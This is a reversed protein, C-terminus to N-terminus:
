ADYKSMAVEYLNKAQHPVNALFRFFSEVEGWLSMEDIEWTHGWLHFVGDFRLCELALYRLSDGLSHAKLTTRFAKYRGGYFGQTLYNSIYTMSSHPYLQITTPMLFQSDMLGYHLNNITRAYKYGSSKVAEVHIKEFKGGPYCFGDINTSTIDQLKKRCDNIQHAASVPDLRDLYIHDSTHGGIEYRKSLQYIDSSNMVPKGEINSLPVFFTGQLNYRALLEAMRLDSPSGDDWSTTVIM